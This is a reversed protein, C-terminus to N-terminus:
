QLDSEEMSRGLLIRVAPAEQSRGGLRPEKLLQGAWAAMNAKGRYAPSTEIQDQIRLYARRIEACMGPRGRGDWWGRLTELPVDLYLALGAEGYLSGTEDCKRFYGECRERLKEVTDYFM